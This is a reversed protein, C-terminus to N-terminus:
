SKPGQLDSIILRETEKCKSFVVAIMIVRLSANGRMPTFLIWTLYRRRVAASMFNKTINKKQYTIFINLM